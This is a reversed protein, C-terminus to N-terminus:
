EVARELWHGAGKERDLGASNLSKSALVSVLKKEM